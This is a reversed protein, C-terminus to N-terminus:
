SMNTLCIWIRLVCIGLMMKLYISSHRYESYAIVIVDTVISAGGAAPTRHQAPVAPVKSQARAPTTLVRFLVCFGVFIYIYLSLSPSVYIDHMLIHIYIFILEDTCMNIYIYMYIYVSYVSEPIALTPGEHKM